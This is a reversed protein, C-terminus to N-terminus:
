ADRVGADDVPRTLDDPPWPRASCCSRIRVRSGAGRRSLVVVAVVLLAFVAAALV